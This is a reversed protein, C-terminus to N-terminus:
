YLYLKVMDSSGSIIEEMSIAFLESGNRECKGLDTTSLGLEDGAVCGGTIKCYGEGKILIKCKNDDIREIFIGIPRRYSNNVDTKEISFGQTQRICVLDGYELSADPNDFIHYKNNSTIANLYLDNRTQQLINLEEFEINFLYFLTLPFSQQLPIGYGPTHFSYSPLDIVNAFYDDETPPAQNGFKDKLFANAVNPNPEYLLDIVVKYRKGKELDCNLDIRQYQNATINKLEM